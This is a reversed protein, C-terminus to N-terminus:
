GPSCLNVGKAALIHTVANELRGRDLTGAGVAAVLASDVSSTLAAVKAAAATYLV